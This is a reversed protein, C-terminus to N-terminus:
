SIHFIFSVRTEDQRDSRSKKKSPNKKPPMNSIIISEGCPRPLVSRIERVAPLFSTVSQAVHVFNVPVEPVIGKDPDSVTPYPEWRQTGLKFNEISKKQIGRPM